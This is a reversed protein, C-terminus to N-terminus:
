RIYKGMWNLFEELSAKTRDYEGYDGSKAPKYNLSDERPANKMEFRFEGNKVNPCIKIINLITNCIKKWQQRDIIKKLNKSEYNFVNAMRIFGKSYLLDIVKRIEDEQEEYDHFESNDAIMDPTQGQEWSRVEPQHLDRESKREAKGHINPIYEGKESDDWIDQHADEWEAQTMDGLKSDYQFFRPLEGPYLKDIIEIAAFLHSVNGEPSPFDKCKFIEGDPSIWGYSYEGEDCASDRKQETLLNKYGRWNEMIKKMMM